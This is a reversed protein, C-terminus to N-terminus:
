EHGFNTSRTQVAVTHGAPTWAGVAAVLGFAVVSGFVPVPNYNPPAACARLFLVTILCDAHQANEPTISLQRTPERAYEAYSTCAMNVTATTAAVILYNNGILAPRGALAPRTQTQKYDARGNPMSNVLSHALRNKANREILGSIQKKKYATREHGKRSGPFSRVCHHAYTRAM